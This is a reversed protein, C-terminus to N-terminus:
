SAPMNNIQSHATEEMVDKGFLPDDNHWQYRQGHLFVMIDPLNDYHNIIHRPPFLTLEL